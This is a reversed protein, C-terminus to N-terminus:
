NPIELRFRIEAWGEVSRGYRDKRPIFRANRATDLIRADMGYGIKKKLEADKVQGTADVFVDVTVTAEVGADIADETYKPVVVSSAILAADASLDDNSLPKVDEPKVRKGPDETLLTNGVPATIGKGEPALASPSLGQIPKAMEKPPEKTKRETSVKKEKPKPKPKDAKKPEPKSEEKKVEPPQPKPKETRHIKVTVPVMTKSHSTPRLTVVLIAVLIHAAISIAVGGWSKRPNGGDSSETSRQKNSLDVVHPDGRGPSDGPVPPDVSLDVAASSKNETLM